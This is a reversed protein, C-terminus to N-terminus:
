HNVVFEVRRPTDLLFARTDLLFTRFRAQSFRLFKAEPVTRNRDSSHLGLVAAPRRDQTLQVPGRHPGNQSEFMAPSNGFIV